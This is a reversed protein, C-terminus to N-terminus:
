LVVMPWPPFIKVIRRPIPMTQRWRERRDALIARRGPHRSISNTFSPRRSRCAPLCFQSQNPQGASVAMAPMTTPPKIIDAAYTQRLRMALVVVGVVAVTVVVRFTM